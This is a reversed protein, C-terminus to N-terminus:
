WGRYGSYQRYGQSYGQRFGDRYAGNGNRYHSSNNPNPSRRSRADEQGRDLGDHYGKNVDANYAGGYGGYSGYGGYGYRDRERRMRERERQERRWERERERERQDEWRDWDRYRGQAQVLANSAVGSSLVLVVAAALSYLYKKLKQYNM